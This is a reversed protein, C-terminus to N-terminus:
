TPQPELLRVKLIHSNGKELDGNILVECQYEGATEFKLNQLQIPLVIYQEERHNDGVDVNCEAKFIIGKEGVLRIEVRNKGVDKVTVKLRVLVFMLPHVCPIKQAFIENFGAGVLTFKNRDNAAAYDAFILDSVKM